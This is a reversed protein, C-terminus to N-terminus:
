KEGGDDMAAASWVRGRFSKTERGYTDLHALLIRRIEQIALANRQVSHGSKVVLESAAGDLHSSNYAVVGDSDGPVADRINGIISHYPVEPMALSNMLKLAM